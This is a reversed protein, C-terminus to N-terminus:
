PSHVQLHPYNRKLFRLALTTHCHRVDPNNRTPCSCGLYVDNEEALRALRDFPERDDRFRWELLEMYGVEFRTWAEVTPDALYAEVMERTPRLVHRTHKRTDQRIGPPLESAPKGREMTYRALM